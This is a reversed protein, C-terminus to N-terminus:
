RRGSGGASRRPGSRQPEHRDGRGAAQGARGAQRQRRPRVHEDILRRCESGSRRMSSRRRERGASEHAAVDTQTASRVDFQLRWSRRGGIESCWLDLTGIETLRAHLNVAVTEAEGKKRTRLVTRIPPLPTMRERDIPVLEGPKDTLRTSSVYCRFSSRSPSWCTSVAARDTRRGAGARHRGAGPLRCCPRVPSADPQERAEVGIYYTRALGAAIRVGQGRRVMGYYAAGRAVALDLRDNDLVVPSWADGCGPSDPRPFRQVLKAASRAAARPAAAVRVRRRQLARHRAPGPRPRGADDGDDMAVHRHATLFAALYRTIAADPAFPLGFEQFGSRRGAPKEDLAVRPFFGDVLLERVEERTVEVQMGGGILRSGAGPLNVTCGSRRCRPGAANGEGAPLTRVLVAWQRPELKGLQRDRRGTAARQKADESSAPGAGSRSQRRRPDPPRRRGRSPVAGQRRRRPPRPDAHLRVHRRRHRLGSDEPGAAVLQEWDDRHAYIWAYFAAQPEEILVVRPLGALAAAKVTLERAVEDFSAPLTLM